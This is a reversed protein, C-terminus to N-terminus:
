EGDKKSLKLQDNGDIWRWIGETEDSAMKLGVSKLLEDAEKWDKAARFYSM